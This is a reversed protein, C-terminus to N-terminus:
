QWPDTLIELIFATDKQNQIATSKWRSVAVMGVAAATGIVLSFRM